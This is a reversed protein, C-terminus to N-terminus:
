FEEVIERARLWVVHCNCSARILFMFREVISLRYLIPRRLSIRLASSFNDSSVFLSASFSPHRCLIDGFLVGNDWRVYDRRRNKERNKRERNKSFVYEYVSGVDGTNALHTNLYTFLTHHACHARVLSVFINTM